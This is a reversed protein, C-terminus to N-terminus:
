ALETGVMTGTWHTGGDLTTLIYLSRTGATLTPTPPTNNAWDVEAPWVIDWTGTGDQITYITMTHQGPATPATITFTCDATLTILFAAYVNPDLTQAAGSIDITQIDNLSNLTAPTVFKTADVGAKVEAESASVPLVASVDAADQYPDPYIPGNVLSQTM